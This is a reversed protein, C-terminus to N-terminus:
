KRKPVAKPASVGFKMTHRQGGATFSYEGKQLLEAKVKEYMGETGSGTADTQLLSM